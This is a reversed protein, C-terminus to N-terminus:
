DTMILAAGAASEMIQSIGFAEGWSVWGTMLGQKNMMLYMDVSHSDSHRVKFKMTPLIVEREFDQLGQPRAVSEGGISVHDGVKALRMFNHEDAKSMEILRNDDLLVYDQTRSSNAVVVRISSGWQIRISILPEPKLGSKSREYIEISSGNATGTILNFVSEISTARIVWNGHTNETQIAQGDIILKAVQPHDLLEVMRDKLLGPIKHKATFEVQDRNTTTALGPSNSDDSRLIGEVFTTLESGMAMSAELDMAVETM